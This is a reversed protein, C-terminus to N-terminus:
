IKLGHLLANGLITFFFQNRLLQLLDDDNNDNILSFKMTITLNVEFQCILKWTLIIVEMYIIWNTWDLTITYFIAIGDTVPRHM